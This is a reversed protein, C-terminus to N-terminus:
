VLVWLGGTNQVRRTVPEGGVGNDADVTAAFVTSGNDDTVEVHVVIAEALPRTFEFSRVPDSSLGTVDVVPGSQQAFVYSPTGTVVISSADITATTTVDLTGSPPDLPPVYPATWEILDGIVNWADATLTTYEHVMSVSRNSNPSVVADLLTTGAPILIGTIRNGAAQHRGFIVANPAVNTDQLWLYGSTPTASYVTLVGTPAATAVTVDVQRTLRTDGGSAFTVLAQKTHIFKNLSMSFVPIAVNDWKAAQNSLMSTGFIVGDWPSLDGPVAAAHSLWEVTDGFETDLYAELAQEHADPAGATATSGYWHRAM